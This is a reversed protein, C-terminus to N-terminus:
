AKRQAFQLWEKNSIALKIKRLDDAKRIQEIVWLGKRAINYAGNSDANNPLNIDSKRTDFFEGKENAVPSILYDVESNSKNNRMQLTLKFLRLLKEFFIKESQAIILQKLNNRYEINYEDFLKIFENGLVITESDWQNIKNPNRFTKIREGHACITWDLRTEEAKSSFECYDDVVFEFYDKEQNFRIDKFKNFFSKVKDVSEYRTDFLNVFGTIPDMNSTNWAPIYFLFGSQKGMEKFSKFKNTLQYAKLLGGIEIPSKKKDVLYNLKDILMKEFKQYVQKEVKQRGRMFGFNLDELVVIAKYEIILQAIKHIVQSLYGEKLEKINEITKWDKRAKDRDGEKKDLLNHYDTRYTNGNYENVIENLSFQKVINGKLDILSLYLLHREGRDIGIIHEIKNEKIFNNVNENIYENGIAKFNLTIPVHFQFKDLTYRRDKILDYKFVSQKKKSDINKNDIPHNAAHFIKNNEKISKKRFFIQAQGNLKYVVDRLNNSDFLAKWYLTHMNPTGKSYPSFDKNYIQFLYIKGEEILQNIYSEAIKRFTIKYGQQEVERYFGSLDKYESTDSFHFNFSKWDEHKNISIKFFDILARCDDINFNDGKKHTGEEYNKLLNASPNFEKIRSKSFFVKPLMKNAGPLLKYNMKEYYNSGNSEMYECGFVNNHQKDMIALYYLGNKRLIVSTNDREKNVDWGDLLTSNEFNLKIKETSYPKKTAYNRTMNYLPTIKDFETWLKDFESYFHTDRDIEDGKGLLPKIFWQLKKISDLFQKVLEINGKDQSLSQTAPYPTNLLNRVSDYNKQILSLLDEEFETKGFTKFYLLLCSNNKDEKTMNTFYETMQKNALCNDIFEISFSDTSKYKKEIQEEYKEQTQKTTKPMNNRYKEKIADPIVSYSGFLNQSINTLGNDKRLYIKSLDYDDLHGLLNKLSHENSVNKDLVKFDIEKYTKEINELVENDNEFQKPLWSIADRDSLIQKFLQTFKDLKSEKNQQNYLNIYENLGQIKKGNKETKGGIVANYVEIQIQTLVNGYYDIKFMDAISNVNMYGDESLEEYLSDINQSIYEKVKGFVAINRAFKPLNENILRYSIATSKEEDSYMNARNENFGTFYTTFNEFEKVLTHAEKKNLNEREYFKSLDGDEIFKLLDTKILDKSFLIALGYQKFSDVIQKRLISQLKEIESKEAKNMVLAYYEGLLEIGNHSKFKFDKLANEIFLKHYEDIIKKVIKYSNARHEDKCLIGNKEINELTKGMPKLEFRLSKQIPYLNTFNKM